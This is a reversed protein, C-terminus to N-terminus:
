ASRLVRLAGSEILRQADQALLQGFDAPLHDNTALCVAANRGNRKAIYLANDAVALVQEWCLANAASSDLPMCAIGISCTRKLTREDGLSFVAHEIAARLRDGVALADAEDVIAVELLFEEGGWRVALEHERCHQRLLDALGRLLVDGAAHGYTDNVSKFHDIDILVLATRSLGATDSRITQDRRRAMAGVFGRRNALGTLPDTLSAREIEAYALKLATNAAELEHTRDRVKGELEAVHHKIQQRMEFAEVARDVTLMLEHHDFPKVVFKYIGARNIADVIAGVDVFGTIIIRIPDPMSDCLHEFLEIGTMHPMRQDSLIVAPIDSPQLSLLRRLAQTGDTADLVRFRDGLMARLVRLNGEEDDVIMVSHRPTSAASQQMQALREPKFLSM